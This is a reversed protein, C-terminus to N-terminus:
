YKNSEYDLLFGHRFEIFLLADLQFLTQCSSCKVNDPQTSTSFSHIENCSISQWGVIKAPRERGCLCHNQKNGLRRPPHDGSNFLGCECWFSVVWDDSTDYTSWFHKTKEEKIEKKDKSVEESKLEDDNETKVNENPTM